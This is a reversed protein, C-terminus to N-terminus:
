AVAKISSLALKGTVTKWANVMKRKASARRGEKEKVPGAGAMGSGSEGSAADMQWIEVDLVTAIYLLIRITKLM